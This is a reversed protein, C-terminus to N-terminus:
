KIARWYYENLPYISFQDKKVGFNISALYIELCIAINYPSCYQGIPYVILIASLIYHLIVFVIFFVEWDIMKGRLYTPQPTNKGIYFVLSEVVLGGLETFLECSKIDM